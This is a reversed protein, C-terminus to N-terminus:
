RPLLAIARGPGGSSGAIKLPLFIFYAGRAPLENLNTLLEVYRMGRSLGEHHVPVPDHSPGVTPADTGLTKVGREYLYVATEPSPAPWGNFDGTVLPRHLFKLGEAGETYYRDWGTRFLVIDGTQMPGYEEEWARVHEDTILPSVGPKADEDAFRADIVAAPGM